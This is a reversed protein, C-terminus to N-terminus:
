IYQDRGSYKRALVQMLNESSSNQVCAKFIDNVSTGFHVIQDSVALIQQGKAPMTM